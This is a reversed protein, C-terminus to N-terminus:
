KCSKKIIKFYNQTQFQVYLGSSIAFSCIKTTFHMIKPVEYENIREFIGSFNKNGFGYSYKPECIQSM